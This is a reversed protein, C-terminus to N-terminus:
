FYIEGYHQKCVINAYIQMVDLQPQRMCTLLRGGPIIYAVRELGCCQPLRKERVIDNYVKLGNKGPRTNLWIAIGVVFFM